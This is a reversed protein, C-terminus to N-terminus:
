SVAVSTEFGIVERVEVFVETCISHEIAVIKVEMEM